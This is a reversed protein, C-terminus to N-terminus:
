RCATRRRHATPEPPEIWPCNHGQAPCAQGRSGLWPCPAGSRAFALEQQMKAYTQTAGDNSCDYWHLFGQLSGENCIKLGQREIERLIFQEMDVHCCRQAVRSYGDETLPASSGELSGPPVNLPCPPFMGCNQGKIPCDAGPKGLWACEIVHARPIEAQMEAFDRGDDSCDYWHVFGHLDSLDCVQFGQREIERRVFLSMEHHCCLQATQQYGAQDLPAQGGSMYERGALKECVQNKSAALSRNVQVQLLARGQELPQCSGGLECGDLHTEAGVISLITFGVIAAPLKVFTCVHM